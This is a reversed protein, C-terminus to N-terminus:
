WALVHPLDGAGWISFRVWFCPAPPKRCCQLAAPITVVKLEWAGHECLGVGGQQRGARESSKQSFGPGRAVRGGEWLSIPFGNFVALLSTEV